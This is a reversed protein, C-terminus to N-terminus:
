KRRNEPWVYQKSLFVAVVIAMVIGIYGGAPTNTMAFALWVLVSIFMSIVFRTFTVLADM